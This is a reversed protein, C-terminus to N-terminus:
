LKPSRENRWHDVNPTVIFVSPRSHNLDTVNVLAVVSYSAVPEGVHISAVDDHLARASNKLFAVM